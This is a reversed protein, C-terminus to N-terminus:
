SGCLWFGRRWVLRRRLGELSGDDYHLLIRGVEFFADDAGTPLGIIFVLRACALSCEEDEGLVLRRRTIGDVGDFVVGGDKWDMGADELAHFAECERIKPEVPNETGGLAEVIVGRAVGGEGPASGGSRSTAEPAHKAQQGGRTRARM